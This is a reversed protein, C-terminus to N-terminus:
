WTGLTKDSFQVLDVISIVSIAHMTLFTHKM